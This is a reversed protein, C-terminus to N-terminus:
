DGGHQALIPTHRNQAIWLKRAISRRHIESPRVILIVQYPPLPHYSKLIAGDCNVSVIHNFCEWDCDPAIGQVASTELSPSLIDEYQEKKDFQRHCPETQSLRDPRRVFAGTHTLSSIHNM